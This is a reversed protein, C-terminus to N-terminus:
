FYRHVLRFTCLLHHETFVTFHLIIKDMQCNWKHYLWASLFNCTTVTTATFNCLIHFMMFYVTCLWRNGPSSFSPDLQSIFRKYINIMHSDSIKYIEQFMSSASYVAMEWDTYKSIKLNTFHSKAQSHAYAYTYIFSPHCSRDHIYVLCPKGYWINANSFKYM